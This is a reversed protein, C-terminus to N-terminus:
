LVKLIRIFKHNVRYKDSVYVSLFYIVQSNSSTTETVFGKGKIEELKQKLSAVRNRLRMNSTKLFKLKALNKKKFSSAIRYYLVAKTPSYMDSEQFDGM